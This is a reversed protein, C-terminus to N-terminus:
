NVEEKLSKIKKALRISENMIERQTGEDNIKSM